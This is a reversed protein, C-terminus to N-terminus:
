IIESKLQSETTTNLKNTVPQFCKITQNIVEKQKSRSISKVKNVKNISKLRLTEGGLCGLTDLM